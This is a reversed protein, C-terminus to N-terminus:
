TIALRPTRHVPAPVPAWNLSHCAGDRSYAHPNPSGLSPSEGCLWTITNFTSPIWTFRALERISSFPYHQLADLIERDTVITAPEEPPRDVLLSTFQGQRLYKTVTSYAIADAGLVAILKNDVARLSLGKLALFLCILRQNM